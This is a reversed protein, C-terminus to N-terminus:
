KKRSKKRNKEEMYETFKITPSIPRGKSSIQKNFNLLDEFIDKDTVIDFEPYSDFSTMECIDKM